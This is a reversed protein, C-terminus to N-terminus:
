CARASGEIAPAHSPVPPMQLPCPNWFSCALAFSPPTLDALEHCANGISCNGNTTVCSMTAGKAAIQKYSRGLQCASYRDFIVSITAVQM